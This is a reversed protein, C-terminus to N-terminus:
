KDKSNKGIGFVGGRILVAMIYHEDEMHSPKNGKIWEYFLTYFDAKDHPIRYARGLNTVAGYPEIAIPGVNFEEYNPYWTDITRLANGIKQSHLAAIGGVQYLIKSKQGNEKDKGNNMVLEQSPYVDQGNGLRAYATVILLLSDRRGCLADAIYGALEGIEKHNEDFDRLDYDYAQFEWTKQDEEDSIIIEIDEAGVRNRWLFRGNALNMAYRRALEAFGTEEAYSKGMAIIGAYCDENNCATPIWAYPLIRLSFQLKLTDDEPRLSANDVIQPNPNQINANMKLLDSKPDHWNSITGRVAKEVLHIPLAKDKNNRYEWRTSWMCGDSPSLKREFSLVSAENTTKTKQAM